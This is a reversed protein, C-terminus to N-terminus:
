VKWDWASCEERGPLRNRSVLQDLQFIGEAQDRSVSETGHGLTPSLSLVGPFTTQRGWQVGVRTGDNGGGECNLVSNLPPEAVAHGQLGTRKM